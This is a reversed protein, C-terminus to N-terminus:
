RMRVQYVRDGRVAILSGGMKGLAMDGGVADDEVTKMGSSGKRAPFM